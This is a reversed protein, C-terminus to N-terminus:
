HEGDKAPPISYLYIKWPSDGREFVKELKWGLRDSNGVEVASLIYAAGLDRLAATDFSLEEVNRKKAQKTCYFDHKIESSFLYARSGWKYFYDAFSKDKALENAIAKGFRHKYELPYDYFYGDIDYFGNYLAIAPHMGISGVRYSEQPKGIYDRIASFLEPSYFEHYTLRPRELPHGWLTAVARLLPLTPLLILFATQAALLVVAMGKGFRALKCIQALALAFILGWLSAHLWNVRGFNFAVLVQLHSAALLRRTEQWDQFGYILSIAACAVLLTALARGTRPSKREDITGRLCYRWVAAALAVLVALSIFPFQCSAAHYQGFLFSGGAMKLSESLSQADPAFETRHSVYGSPQLQTLFLRYNTLIYGATLLVFAAALWGNFRGRHWWLYVTYVGLFPVLVFGVLVLSSFFPFMAVVALNALPRKAAALNLVVYFLLPQGAISLGYPYFPLLAFCLAAGAILWPPSEPLVHRRLLLAMGAVAILRLFVENAVYAKFPSVVVYPWLPVYLESLMCKRPVGGLERAFVADGPSLLLGSKAFTTYEPVLVDLCDHTIVYSNEGGRYHWAMYGLTLGLVFFLWRRFTRNVRPSDALVSQDVNM